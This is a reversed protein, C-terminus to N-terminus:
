WPNTPLKLIVFASHMLIDTLVILPVDQLHRQDTEVFGLSNDFNGGTWSRLWFPVSLFDLEISVM